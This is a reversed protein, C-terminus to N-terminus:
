IHILSLYEMNLEKRDSFGLLTKDKELGCVHPAKAAAVQIWILLLILATASYPLHTYSVPSISQLNVTRISCHCYRYHFIVSETQKRLAM